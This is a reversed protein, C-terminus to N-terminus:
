LQVASLPGAFPARGAIDGGDGIRDTSLQADIFDMGFKERVLFDGMDIGQPGPLFTAM